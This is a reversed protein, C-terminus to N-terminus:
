RKRKLEFPLLSKSLVIRAGQSFMNSFIGDLEPFYSDM